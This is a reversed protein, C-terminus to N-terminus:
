LTRLSVDGAYFVKEKDQIKVRIAGQENLGVFIGTTKNAGDVIHVDQNLYAAYDSWSKIISDFGYQQWLSLYYLTRNVVGAMIDMRDGTIDDGIKTTPYLMDAGQPHWVVNVGIGILYYDDTTEILIGAVKMGDVLVDNPWKLQIDRKLGLSKLTDLVALSVVLSLGTTPTPVNKVPMAFTCLVNGIASAWPRGANRGRGHTQEDAYLVPMNSFDSRLFPKIAEMTSVAKAVHHFTFNPPLACDAMNM